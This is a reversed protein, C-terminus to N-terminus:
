KFDPKEPFTCGFHQIIVLAAYKGCRICEKIDKGQVLQSLFGGVFADGCGNTDKIIDHPAKSVPFETIQGGEAVITPDCGQTFIVIRKNRNEKPLQSIKAAMEKIDTTDIGILKCFTAAETENGILIDIYPLINIDPDAYFHCLFPASLNMVLTKHEKGAHEAIMKISKPSVTFVFGGIYYYQAKEVLEWHEKKELFHYTFNEASGLRTVLSRNEGTIVAGCLGTRKAPNIQYHVNVGVEEAKKKLIGGMRDNGVCGFFTTAKPKQLLWQAVRISNQTAGGAVFEPNMATLMEEYMLNHKEEALIANNAELDYKKLFNEDTIVTVDLLPNGLGLLIGEPVDAM